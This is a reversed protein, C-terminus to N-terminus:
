KLSISNKQAWLRLRIIKKLSLELVVVNDKKALPPNFVRRWSAEGGHGGPSQHYKEGNVYGDMHVAPDVSIWIFPDKEKLLGIPIAVFFTDNEQANEIDELKIHGASTTYKEWAFPAKGVKDANMLEELSACSAVTNRMSELSAQKVPSSGIFCDGLDYEVVKSWDTEKKLRLLRKKMEELVDKYAANKWLNRMEHSDLKLDYLEVWEKDIWPYTILKFRNTRVAVQGPLIPNVSVTEFFFDERWDVSQNQADFIPRWSKGTMEDPVNNECMDMITPAIDINLVMENRRAGASIKEPYRVLMPVRMPEEYAFHKETLGHEGLTYGQDSTYIVITNQSIECEDIADLITGVSEDISLSSRYYSKIYNEWTGYSPIGGIFTKINIGKKLDALRQSKEYDEDYSIPKPIDIGDFTHELRPPYSFNLHPAKLGVFACFPKEDQAHEKIYDAALNSIIDDSFGEYKKKEGNITMETDFYSGLWEFGAWHDYGDKQKQGEGLHWKGFHATQYNTDHLRKPFTTEQCHFTNNMWMIQPTRAQHAYKGTLISGRSPSCIGSTAFANDFCVGENALRDLNPTNLYMNGTCSMMDYRHDDSVIIVVNPKSKACTKNEQSSQKSSERDNSNDCGTLSQAIAGSFATAATMQIFKRRDISM